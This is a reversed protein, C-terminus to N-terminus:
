TTPAVRGGTVTVLRGDRLEHVTDFRDLGIREHTIVLVGRDGVARDLDTLFARAAPPDLMATPEDLLLLRAPSVLCRALAIRQRQGGSVAFGEEGVLTGVGDPLADLWPGLGTARLAAEVQADDAEPAGIRVNNAISTAFLHADQGALRVGARLEEPALVGLPRGGLAIEGEDAATLGALLQVLVTKGAGSPGILAAREGARLTLDVGDLVVAAGAGGPRHRIGRATLLVAAEAVAEASRPAARAFRPAAQASPPAAQAFPPAAQAFRPAAQAIPPAAQATPPAGQAIPPAAQATPPAGQAIPPAAQALRREAAAVSVARTAAEPLPALPEFAGLALLALAGLWVPDLTGAAAPDIAVALVAILTVGAILTGLGQALASAAADRRAIRSLRASAADLRGLREAGRGALALQPAADMTEVLEDVLAAREEGQRRLAGRASVFALASPVIAGALLGAGLVMGAVPLVVAALATATLSAVLAVLLPGRVRVDRHQLEDVDVVFRSLLDAAPLAAADGAPGGDHGASRQGGRVPDFTRLDRRPRAILRRYWGVRLEALQRFALDHAALREGYRGFARVLGLARVVVIAALLALVPPREAARTVLWGSAALLVTGAVAAAAGLLVIRLRERGGAVGRRGLASM